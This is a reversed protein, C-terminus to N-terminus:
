EFPQFPQGLEFSFDLDPNERLVIDLTIILDSLMPSMFYPYFWTWSPCGRFYYYMVFQIGKLYDESISRLEEM